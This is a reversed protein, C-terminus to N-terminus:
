SRVRFMHLQFPAKETLLENISATRLRNSFYCRNAMYSRFPGRNPSPIDSATHVAPRSCPKEEAVMSEFPTSDHLRLDHRNEEADGRQGSRRAAEDSGLRFQVGRERLIVDQHLLVVGLQGLDLIERGM